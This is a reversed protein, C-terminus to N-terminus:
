ARMGCPVSWNGYQPSLTVRRTAFRQRRTSSSASTTRAAAAALAEEKQEHEIKDIFGIELADKASFWTEDAMLQKIKSESEGSKKVYEGVLSGGIKDLLDAQRRLDDSNGMMLCWPDHIMLFANDAM